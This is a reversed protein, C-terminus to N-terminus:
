KVERRRFITLGAATTVGVWLATMCFAYALVNEGVLRSVENPFSSGGMLLYRLPAAFFLDAALRYWLPGGEEAGLLAIPVGFCLVLYVLVIAGAASKLTMLCFFTFSLVSLWTLYHCLIVQAMAELLEGAAAPSRPASTFSTALFFWGIVVAAVATGTLAAALLKGLYVRSRPIGFVVENKLTARGHQDDFAAAAFIPALFLGLFLCIGLVVYMAEREIWGSFVWFSPCLMWTELGLLVGVAIWLGKHRRLKYLEASIYNLM